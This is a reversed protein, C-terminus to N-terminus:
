DCMIIMLEMHLLPPGSFVAIQAIWEVYKDINSLRNLHFAASQTCHVKASSISIVAKKRCLQNIKELICRCKHDVAWLRDSQM